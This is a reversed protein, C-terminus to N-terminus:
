SKGDNVYTVDPLIISDVAMGPDPTATIEATGDPLVFQSEPAVSGGSQAVASVVYKYKDPVGTDDSCM